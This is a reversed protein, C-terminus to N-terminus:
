EAAGPAVYGYDLARELPAFDDANWVFGKINKVSSNLEGLNLKIEFEGRQVNSRQTLIDKM